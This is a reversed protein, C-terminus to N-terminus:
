RDSNPSLWWHIQPITIHVYSPECDIIITWLISSHSFINHGADYDKLLGYRHGGFHIIMDETWLTRYANYSILIDWYYKWCITISSWGQWHDHHEYWIISVRSRSLLNRIGRSLALLHCPPKLNFIMVCDYWWVIHLYYFFIVIKM